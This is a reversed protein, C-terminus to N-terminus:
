RTLATLSRRRQVSLCRRWWAPYLQDRIQPVLPFLIHLHLNWDVVKGEKSCDVDGAQVTGGCHFVTLLCFTLFLQKNMKELSWVISVQDIIM